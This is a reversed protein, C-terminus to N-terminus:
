CDFTQTSSVRRANFRATLEVYSDRPSAATDRRACAGGASSLPMADWM